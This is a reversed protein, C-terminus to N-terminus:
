RGALLVHNWVCTGFPSMDHAPFSNYVCHPPWPVCATCGDSPRLVDETELPWLVAYDAALTLFAALGPLKNIRLGILYTLRFFSVCLLVWPVCVVSCLGLGGTLLGWCWTVCILVGFRM